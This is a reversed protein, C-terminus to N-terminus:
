LSELALCSAGDGIKCAKEYWKKAVKMDKQTGGFGYAFANGLAGCGTADDKECAKYFLRTARAEDKALGNIGNQFENGLEMCAQGDGDNCKKQADAAAAASVPPGDPAHAAKAIQAESLGHQRNCACALLPLVAISLM